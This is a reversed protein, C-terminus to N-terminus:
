ISFDMASATKQLLCQFILFTQLDNILSLYKLSTNSKAELNLYIFALHELFWLSTPQGKEGAQEM